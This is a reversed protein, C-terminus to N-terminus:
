ARVFEVYDGDGPMTARNLTAKWGKKEFLPLAKEVVAVPILGLPVEISPQRADAYKLQWIANSVWLVLDLNDRQESSLTSTQAPTPILQELLTTVDQEMM